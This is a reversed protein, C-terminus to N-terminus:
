RRVKILEREWKEMALTIQNKAQQPTEKKTQLFSWVTQKMGEKILETMSTPNKTTVM